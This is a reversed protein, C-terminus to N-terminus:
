GRCIPCNPEALHQEQTRSWEGLCGAHFYHEKGAGGACRMASDDVSITDLCVPCEVEETSAPAAAAAAEENDLNTESVRAAPVGSMAGATTPYGSVGLPRPPTRALGVEATERNSPLTEVTRDSGQAYADASRTTQAEVPREGPIELSSTAPNTRRKQRSPVCGM